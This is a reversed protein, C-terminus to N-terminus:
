PVFLIVFHLSCVDMLTSLSLSVFQYVIDQYDVGSSGEIKRAFLFKADRLGSGLGHINILLLQSNPGVYNTNIVTKLFRPCTLWQENKVSHPRVYFTFENPETSAANKSVANLSIKTQAAIAAPGDFPFLRSLQCASLLILNVM